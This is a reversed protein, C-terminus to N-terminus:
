RSNSTLGIDETLSYILTNPSWGKSVGIVMKKKGEQFIMMISDDNILEWGKRNEKDRYFNFISDESAETKFAWKPNKGVGAAIGVTEEISPHPIFRTGALRDQAGSQLWLVIILIPIMLFTMFIFGAQALWALIATPRYYGSYYGQGALIICFILIIIISFQM